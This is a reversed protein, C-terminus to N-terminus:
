CKKINWRKVSSQGTTGVGAPAEQEDNLWWLYHPTLRVSISSSFRGSSSFSSNRINTWPFETVILMTQEANSWM